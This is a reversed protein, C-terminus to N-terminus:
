KMVKEAQSNAPELKKNFALRLVFRTRDLAGPRLVLVHAARRHDSANVERRNAM